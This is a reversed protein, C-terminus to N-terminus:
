LVMKDTILLRTLTLDCHYNYGAYHTQEGHSYFGVIPIKAYKKINSYEEEHKNGKGLYIKRGVCNYDFMIVPKFEVHKSFLEKTASESADLLAEPTGQLIELGSGEPTYCWFTLSDDKEIPGINRPWIKGQPDKVGCPHGTGGLGSQGGFATFPYYDRLTDVSLNIGKLESIQGAYWEAAPINNVTYVKHILTKKRVEPPDVKTVLGMKGASQWGHRTDIVIHVATSMLGLVVANKYARGNIFVYPPNDTVSNGATGGVVPINGLVEQIGRLIGEEGGITSHMLVYNKADKLARGKLLLSEVAMSIAQKGAGVDDESVKTAVGVGFKIYPSCIIAVVISDEFLGESTIEGSTTCGIWPMEREITAPGPIAANIGAAVEKPTYEYASYVLAISFNQTGTKKRAESAAAEALEFTSMKETHRRYGFGAKVNGEV